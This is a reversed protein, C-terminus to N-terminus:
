YGPNQKFNNNLDIERQPIAFLLKNNVPKGQAAMYEEAKGFRLLDAWRHNEFAFEVRREQLLKEEFSGSSNADIDSLGARNRIKNILDYSEDSEGLAEALMLVVDAYRFVIWNNSADDQSFPNSKGYKITWGDNSEDVGEISSVYRKDGEEYSNILDREPINRLGGTVSAALDSNFQNTFQNGQDGLGGQFEVEFISESNHENEVGWLNSYESVLSYGNISRLTSVANQNDGLTLYIKGLLTLAAGKTARGIDNGSYSAPLNNAATQLDGVLQNYVTKADSQTFNRGEDVSVVENLVLPINGFGVALNYYFLSRLFLAEGILRAKLDTNMDVGDIRDLVINARSIGLYSDNWANESIISTPIDTFKDFVTIEEALGTGDWYTNDSRLEQLVWYSENYCGDSQLVNYIANTATIMDSETSYFNGSNRQSVPSLDTFENSCGFALFVVILIQYTRNKMISLNKTKNFHPM